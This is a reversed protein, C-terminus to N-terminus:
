TLVPLFPSKKHKIHSIVYLYASQRIRKNNFSTSFCTNEGLFPKVVQLKHCLREYGYCKVMVSSTDFHARPTFSCTSFVGPGSTEDELFFVRFFRLPGDM